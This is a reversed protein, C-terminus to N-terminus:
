GGGKMRRIAGTTSHGEVLRALLVRGGWSKVEAAGVVGEETYDAGKVLLDPRLARILELPTDEAFITVLDVSGLSALVVARGAEHQV